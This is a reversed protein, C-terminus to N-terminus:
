AGARRRADAAAAAALEKGREPPTMSGTVKAWGPLTVVAWGGTVHVACPQPSREAVAVNPPMPLRLQVLSGKPKSLAVGHLIHAGGLRFRLLGAHEHQGFEVTLGTGKALAGVEALQAVRLSLNLRPQIRGGGTSTSASVAPREQRSLLSVPQAPLWSM